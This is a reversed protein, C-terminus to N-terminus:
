FIVEAFGSRVKRHTDLKAYGMEYFPEKKLFREAEEISIENKKVGELLQRLEM